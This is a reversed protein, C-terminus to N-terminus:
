PIITSNIKVEFFEIRIKEEFFSEFDTTIVFSQFNNKMISSSKVLDTSASLLIGNEATPYIFRHQNKIDNLQIFVLPSKYVLNSLKGLTNQNVYIKAFVYGDKTSPVTVNQGFQVEVESIKNKELCVNESNKSFLSFSSGLDEIKHYNCLIERTTAPEDFLYYRNDISEQKYLIFNPSNKQQYFQADLNDLPVNYSNYAGLVPRPHWNLDNAYLFSIDWPYVDVTQNGITNLINKSIPPYESKIKEKDAIRQPEYMDNNMFYQFYNPYRLFHQYQYSDVVKTLFGIQESIELTNIKEVTLHLASNGVFVFVILVIVISYKLFNHNKPIKLTCLFILLVALWLTFFIFAHDERVFGIRFSIFLIGSSIFLIKLNKRKKRASDLILWFYLSWGVLAFGVFAFRAFDTFKNMAMAITYGSIVSPLNILYDLFSALPYGMILWFSIIFSVYAALCIIVEKFRKQILLIVVSLVLISLSGVALEGKIYFMIAASFALPLLLIPKKSYELYLYFGLLLGIVTYEVLLRDPLYVSLIGFALATLYPFRTKFCLLTIVLFFLAHATIKYFFAQSWLSQDINIPIVLYGLPGYTWIIETGWVLGNLKALHIGIQWSPDLEYNTPLIQYPLSWIFFFILIGLTIITIYNSNSIKALLTNLNSRQLIM